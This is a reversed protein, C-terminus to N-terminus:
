HCFILLLVTKSLLVHDPLMALSSHNLKEGTVSCCLMISLRDKALKGGKCSEGKFIMSKSPLQRYFVTIEDANFQGEVAHGEVVAPLHRKCDDVAEKDVNASEGCLTRFNVNNQRRFAELWGNSAALKKIQLSSANEAAKAQPMPGTVPINQARCKIFFELMINNAEENETKRM